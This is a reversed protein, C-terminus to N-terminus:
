NREVALDCILRTWTNRALLYGCAVIAVKIAKGGIAHEIPLEMENLALTRSM